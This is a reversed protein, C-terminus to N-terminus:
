SIGFVSKQGKIICPAVGDKKYPRGGRPDLGMCSGM